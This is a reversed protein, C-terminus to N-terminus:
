RGESITGKRVVCNFPSPPPPGGLAAVALPLMPAWVFEYTISTPNLIFFRRTNRVRIGLSEFEVVKTAPDLLETVGSPGPLDPNRRGGTVYDSEPLDFHCWPRLVQV